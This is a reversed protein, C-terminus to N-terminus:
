SRLPLRFHLPPGLRTAGSKWTVRYRGPLKLPFNRAYKVRSGWTSGAQRFLPFSGCREAFEPGTGVPRVRRVCLTYRGFYRAATTIELSVNGRRVFIGFCV